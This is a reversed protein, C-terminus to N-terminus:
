KIRKTRTTPPLQDPTTLTNSPLPLDEYGLLTRGADTLMMLLSDAVEDAYIQDGGLMLIQPRASPSNVNAALTDDLLALADASNTHIKRCSGLAFRVQEINAPPLLFSPAQYNGYAFASISRGTAEALNKTGSATAFSLRYFYLRGLALKTSLNATVAVIYLKPGIRRAPVPTPTEIAPATAADSNHITLTVTAFEKLALWVTVSTETVTRLIPGALVTPLNGIRSDLSTWTVQDNNCEGSGCRWLQV